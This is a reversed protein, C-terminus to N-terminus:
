STESVLINTNAVHVCGPHERRIIGLIEESSTLKGLLEHLAPSHKNDGVGLLQFAGMIAGDHGRPQDQSIRLRLGQNNMGSGRLIGGAKAGVKNISPLRGRPTYM